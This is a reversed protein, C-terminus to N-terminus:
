SFASPVLGVTASANACNSINCPHSSRRNRICTYAQVYPEHITTIFVFGRSTRWQGNEENVAPDIFFITLGNKEENVM